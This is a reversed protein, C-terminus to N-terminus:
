QAKLKAVVDKPHAQVEKNCGKCCLLFTKGEATVKIPVDMSGLHEGSVPCVIQALAIARDDPPLKAIEKMEDDSLAPKASAEKKEDKPAPEKAPPSLDPVKDKSEDAKPAPTEAKPAPAEKAPTAPAAPPTVAPTGGGGPEDSNCGAFLSLVVAAGFLKRIAIM